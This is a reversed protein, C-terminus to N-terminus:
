STWWRHRMGLQETASPGWTGASYPMPDAPADLLPQWVAWSAEVEDGRVFLTQDGEMVDLLLTQYADPISDFSDRYDFKLSETTLAPPEGPAKVDVRLVFGENPQLILVLM